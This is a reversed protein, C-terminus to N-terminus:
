RRAEAAQEDGAPERPDDDAQQEDAAVAVDRQAVEAEQDAGEGQRTECRRVRGGLSLAYRRRTAQDWMRSVGATGFSACARSPTSTSCTPSCSRATARRSACSGRRISSRAAASAPRRRRREAVRRLAPQLDRESPGDRAGRRPREHHHPKAPARGRRGDLRAPPLDRPLQRRLLDVARDPRRGPHRLDRVRRRARVGRAAAVPLGQPLPRRARGGALPGPLHQPHARRRRARLGVRARAVARARARDRGARETLPGPMEGGRRRAYGDQADLLPPLASLHLEPLLLLQVSPAMARRAAVREALARADGAPRPLGAGDPARRDLAHARSRAASRAAPVGGHGEPGARRRAGARLHLEEHVGREPLDAPEERAEPDRKRLIEKVGKVPTM